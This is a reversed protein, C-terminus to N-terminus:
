GVLEDPAASYDTQLSGSPITDAGSTAGTFLSPYLATPDEALSLALMVGSQMGFQIEISEANVYGAPPTVSLTRLASLYAITVPNERWKIFENMSAQASFRNLFCRLGNPVFRGEPVAASVTLRENVPTQEM